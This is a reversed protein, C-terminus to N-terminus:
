IYFMTNRLNGHTQCADQLQQRRAESIEDTENSVNSFGSNSSASASFNFARLYCAARTCVIDAYYTPTVIGVARTCRGFSYCLSQSIDQCMDTPNVGGAKGIFRFIEDHVITYFAPKAHGKIAAHPQQFYNWMRAETITRDVVLGARCNSTSDADHANSPAFRTNHRKTVILITIRPSTAEPYIETCAAKLLPLEEEKVMQYQGESVGDRYILIRQPYSGHNFSRWMELRSILMQKLDSVMEQRKRQVSLVAPWQALYKDTSAVM